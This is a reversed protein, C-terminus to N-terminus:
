RERRFIDTIERIVEDYDRLQGPRCLKRIDQFHRYHIREIESQIKGISDALAVSNSDAPNELTAYLRRKLAMIKHQSHDIHSRHWHILDDYKAIQGKDFHLKDIVIQRAMRPHKPGDFPPRRLVSVVLMLNTAILGIVLLTLFKTKTM